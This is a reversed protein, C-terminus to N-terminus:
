GIHGKIANIPEKIIFENAHKAGSGLERSEELLHSREWDRGRPGKPVKM